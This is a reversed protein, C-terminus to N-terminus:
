RLGLVLRLGQEVLELQNAALHGARATLLSKDVTILQSINVVSAKSLGTGRSGCRV